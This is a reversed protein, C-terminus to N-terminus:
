PTEFQIAGDGARGQQSPPQLQVRLEGAPNALTHLALYLEGREFRAAELPSLLLQAAFQGSTEDGAGLDLPLSRVIPGSAGSSAHFLNLASLGIARPASSLDGFFGAIALRRSPPDYRLRAFGWARSRVALPPVQVGTTLALTATQATSLRQAIAIAEAESPRLVADVVHIVGNDVVVDAQLVDAGEITIRDFGGREISVSTGAASTLTDSNGSKEPDGSKETDTEALTVLDRIVHGRVLEGFLSRYDPRTAAAQMARPFKQFATNTPAFVTLADDNEWRSLEGTASAFEVFESLEASVRLVDAIAGAELAVAGIVSPTPTPEPVVVPQVRSGARAIGAGMGLLM